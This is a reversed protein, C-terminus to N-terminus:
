KELKELENQLDTIREKIYTIKNEKDRMEKELAFKEDSEYFEDEFDWFNHEDGRFNNSCIHINKHIAVTPAVWDCGHGCCEKDARYDEDGVSCKCYGWYREDFGFIISYTFNATEYHNEYENLSEELCRCLNIELSGNSYGETKDSSYYINYEPYDKLDNFLTILDSNEEESELVQLLPAILYPINLTKENYYVQRDYETKLAETVLKIFNEKIEKM